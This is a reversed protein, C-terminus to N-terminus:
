LLNSLTPFRFNQKIQKLANIRKISSGFGVPTWIFTEMEKPKLEIGKGVAM